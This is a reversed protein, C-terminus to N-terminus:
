SSDCREGTCGRYAEDWHSWVVGVVISDVTRGSVDGNGGVEVHVDGLGVVGDVIELSEEVLDLVGYWGENRTNQLCEELQDVFEFSTDVFEFRFLLLGVVDGSCGAALGFGIGAVDVVQFGVVLLGVIDRGAGDGLGVLEIGILLLVCLRERFADLGAGGWQIEERVAALRFHLLRENLFRVALIGIPRNRDRFAPWLERGLAVIATAHKQGPVVNLRGQSRLQPFFGM